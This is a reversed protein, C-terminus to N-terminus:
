FVSYFVVFTKPVGPAPDGLVSHVGGAVTFKGNAIAGNVGDAVDSWGADGYSAGHIKLTKGEEGIDVDIGDGVVLMKVDAAAALKEVTASVEASHAAVKDNIEAVMAAPDSM